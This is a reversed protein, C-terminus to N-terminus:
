KGGFRQDPDVFLLQLADVLQAFQLDLPNGQTSM